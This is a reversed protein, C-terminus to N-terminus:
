WWMMAIRSAGSVRLVDRVPSGPRSPRHNCSASIPRHAVQPCSDNPADRTRCLPGTAVRATRGPSRRPRCPRRSRRAAAVARTRPRPAPTIGALATRPDHLMRIPRRHALIAVRQHAEDDPVVPEFRRLCRRLTVTAAYSSSASYRSSMLRRARSSRAHWAVPSTSAPSCRLPTALGGPV